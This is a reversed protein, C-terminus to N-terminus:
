IQETTIGGSMIVSGTISRGYVVPVPGGQESTNVAGNFMFSPREEPRERQTYSDTSVKPTPTLMAAIGGIILNAGFLAISAYSVSFGGISFATATLGQTAAISSASGIAPALAPAFYFAAAVLAIGAIIRFGGGAGEPVPLIHVDKSGLNLGSKALERDFQIGTQDEASKGAIVRYHGNMLHRMFQNPYNAELLRVIAGLTNGRLRLKKGFKNGLEGYLYVNRM